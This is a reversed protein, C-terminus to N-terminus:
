MASWATLAVFTYTVYAFWKYMENKEERFYIFVWYKSSTQWSCSRGHDRWRGYKTVECQAYMTNMSVMWLYLKATRITYLWYMLFMVGILAVFYKLGLLSILYASCCDIMSGTIHTLGLFTLTIHVTNLFEEYNGSICWIWM